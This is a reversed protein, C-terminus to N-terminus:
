PKATLHPCLLSLSFTEAGEYDDADPNHSSLAPSTLVDARESQNSKNHLRERSLFHHLPPQCRDGKQM